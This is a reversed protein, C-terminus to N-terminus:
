SFNLRVLRLESVHGGPNNGLARLCIIVLLNFNLCDLFM